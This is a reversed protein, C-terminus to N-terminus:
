DLGGRAANVQLTATYLKGTKESILGEVVIARGQRLEDREYDNLTVGGVERPITVDEVPRAILANTLKDRSIYSEIYKKEQDSWLEATRGMNGTESMLNERDERSFRHEHFPLSFNPEKRVGDLMLKVGGVPDQQLSLRFDGRLVVSDGIRASINVLEKTRYGQLLDDLLKRDKLHEKSLGTLEEIEKFNIMGERFRPERGQPQEQTGPLESKNEKKAMETIKTQNEKQIKQKDAGKFPNMLKKLYSLLTAWFSKGTSEITKDNKMKSQDVTSWLFPDISRETNALPEVEIKGTDTQPDKPTTPERPQNSPSRKVFLNKIREWIGVKKEPIAQIPQEEKVSSQKRKREGVEDWLFPDVPLKVKPTKLRDPLLKDVMRFPLSILSSSATYARVSNMRNRVQKWFSKFFAFVADWVDQIFGVDTFGDRFAPQQEGQQEETNKEDRDTTEPVEAPKQVSKKKETEVGSLLSEDRSNKEEM